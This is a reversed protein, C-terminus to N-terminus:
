RLGTPFLVASARLLQGEREIFGLDRLRKLTSNWHGGTPKVSVAFALEVTTLGRPHAQLLEDLVRQESGTTRTRARNHLDQLTKIKETTAPIMEWGLQTLRLGGAVLEAFGYERLQKMNANWNGGSTVLGVWAGLQAVSVTEYGLGHLERLASALRVAGPKPAPKDSPQAYVVATGAHFTGPRARGEMRHQPVMASTISNVALPPAPVVRGYVTPKPKPPTLNAAVGARMANDEEVVMATVAKHAADTAPDSPLTERNQLVDELRRATDELWQRVRGAVLAQGDDYGRARAQALARPDPPATDRTAKALQRRVAALEDRMGELTEAEHRVQEPIDGIEAIWRKVRDSPPYVRGAPAGTDLHTTRVSGSRVEHVGPPLAPGFAYFTGASLSRLQLRDKKTLGLEDGARQMDLDLGTRGILKNLLEAAVNKNLMSIRQTALVACLGRKRGRTCLAVVADTALSQAGEPAFFQAEDLVIVMPRWMDRPLSLLELLFAKVFERKPQVDLDSLDVVASAGVTVLRRCLVRATRPDVPIGEDRGALVYDYKERLTFFEGESDLVIHPVPYGNMQELMARLMHSKGGGSNAQILLRTRLLQARDVLLAHDLTIDEDFRITPMNM